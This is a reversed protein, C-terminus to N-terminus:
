VAPDANRPRAANVQQQSLSLSRAIRRIEETEAFSVAGDANAVSFLVTLFQEREEATTANFFERTLRFYDLDAAVASLAVEAVLAAATRDIAWGAELASAMAGTENENVAQDVHAVLAMLGGALSLKRLEADSISLAQNREELRQRVLYYVRNRVFDDLQEERNPQGAAETRRQIPGSILRGLRAILGLDVANLAARIEEVVAREADTVVGDAQVLEELTAFALARDAPTRLAAQLQTILREREAPGVPSQTYMELMAWEHGPLEIGRAPGASPLRFLLDKLSDVEEKHLAGDAWAAAVIVRALALIVERDSM